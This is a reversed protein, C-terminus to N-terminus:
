WAAERQTAAASSIGASADATVLAPVTALKYSLLSRPTKGDVIARQDAMLLPKAVKLWDIVVSAM